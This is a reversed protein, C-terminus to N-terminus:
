LECVCMGSGLAGVDFVSFSFRPLTIQNGGEDVLTFKIPHVKKAKVRFTIAGNSTIELSCKANNAATGSSCNSDDGNPLASELKLNLSTGNYSGVNTIMAFKDNPGNRGGINDHTIETSSGDFTIETGVCLDVPQLLSPRLHSM